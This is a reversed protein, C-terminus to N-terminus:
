RKKFLNQYRDLFLKPSYGGLWRELFFSDIAGVISSGLPGLIGSATTIVFRLVRGPTSSIWSQSGLVSVYLRELDRADKPSANKLWRRFEYAEKKQRLCWIDVLDVKGSTVAEEVNPLENLDLLKFLGETFTSSVNLRTIKQALIREAGEPVYLDATPYDAAILLDRHFEAIRLVLDIADRNDERIGTRLQNAAIGPLRQLDIHGENAGVINRVLNCLDQSHLIAGYTEHVIHKMFTENNYRSLSCNPLIKDILQTIDPDLLKPCLNKLQAVIARDPEKFLAIQWWQQTTSSNGQDITYGSIGVGNGAYGLLDQTRVFRFAGTELADLFVEKGLWNVLAAVVGYDHTPIIIQDYLTIQSAVHAKWRPDRIFAANINPMEGIDHRILMSTDFVGSEKTM